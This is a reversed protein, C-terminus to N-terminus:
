GLQWRALPRFVLINKKWKFKKERKTSSSSALPFIPFRRVQTCWVTNLEEHRQTTMYEIQWKIVTTAAHDGGMLLLELYWDSSINNLWPSVKPPWFSYIEELRCVADPKKEADCYNISKVDPLCVSVFLALSNHWWGAPTNIMTAYRYLRPKASTFIILADCGTSVILTEPHFIDSLARTFPKFFPLMCCQHHFHIELKINFYCTTLKDYMCLILFLFYIIYSFFLLFLTFFLDSYTHFLM